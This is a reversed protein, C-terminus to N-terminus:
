PAPEKAPVAVPPTAKSPGSMGSFVSAFYGLAMAIVAGGIVWDRWTREGLGRAARKEAKAKEAARRRADELSTMNSSDHGNLKSM